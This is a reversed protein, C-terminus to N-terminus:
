TKIYVVLKEPKFGVQSISLLLLNFERYWANSIEQLPWSHWMKYFTMRVVPCRFNHLRLQYTPQHLQYVSLSASDLLEVMKYQKIVHIGMTWRAADIRGWSTAGLLNQGMFKLIGAKLEKHLQVTTVRCVTELGSIMWFFVIDGDPPFVFSINWWNM